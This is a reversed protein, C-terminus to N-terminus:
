YSYANGNFIYVNGSSSIKSTACIIFGATKGYGSDSINTNLTVNITSSTAILVNNQGTLYGGSISTINGGYFHDNIDTRNGRGFKYRYPYGPTLGSITHSTTQWGDTNHLAESKQWETDSVALVNSSVNVIVKKYAAIDHEGNTTINATGSTVSAASVQVNFIDEIQELKGVPM